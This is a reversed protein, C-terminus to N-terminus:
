KNDLLSDFDQRFEPDRKDRNFFHFGLIDYKNNSKFKIVAEAREKMQLLFKEKWLDKEVLQTGKPEMFIQLQDYGDTQNKSQLFVVFDPEFRAGDDFAYLHFQRENRVLYVKEYKEKLKPMYDRFVGVFAKEEDTGWNENFAYWDEKSLDIRYNEDVTPDNQGYGLGGEHTENYVLKKDRFVRSVPYEMFERAGAYTIDIDEVSSAIKGMFLFVAQYLMDMTLEDKDYQSTINLRIAGLYKDDMIFQRTSRLNPYYSKLINFKLIPYRCLAKYVLAYNIDVLERITFIASKLTNGFNKSSNDEMIADVGSKGTSLRIPYVKCRVTPRISTIKKRDVEKRQNLFIKGKKYFDDAKFSPKLFLSLPEPDADMGIERLAKHLEVVYRHENYCHYYLTECVRLENDTDDDYKRQYLPQETDLQFPCYRAGRGILQAEQMTAPSIRTGSSQRTEYLRVIDFLNLVDWGEDLKKVEFVARYPNSTDELSNLLIQNRDAEKDDNASICHEPAFDDKLESALEDFTIGKSAFYNYARQMVENDPNLNRITELDKGRLHSLKEAFEAIFSKSEKITQAKFLIVPKINLHYRQFIKLRYQSLMLAQLSRNMPDLDSRLTMIEKSYKDIRFNQLPYNFIIKNEYEANILPNNTELTATFELLINDPSSYLIRKVTEEWTKSSEEEEKSKKGKKTLANLHHAEDSLLVTKQGEFDDFTMANEKAFWMDDHLGQITSFCINIAEEDVDQFNSVEKVPVIQSDIMIPSDFLFKSSGSNLFNEKTKQVINTSNVFFLFRRYGQKYLYLILGAMILTKGSGTAMHFLTQSPKTRLTPNEFCTVFNRFAADQYPRLVMKPNLNNKIVKPLTAYASFSKAQEVKEYLYM